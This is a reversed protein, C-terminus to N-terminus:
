ITDLFEQIFHMAVGLPVTHQRLVSLQVFDANTDFTSNAVVYNKLLPMYPPLYETLLGGLVVNCDLAMRINNIGIALHRLLDHWLAEYEPEHRELCDFFEQLSMGLDDSIRYTSVYAELCGRKGCNCPLGAPEVCMHGFEGSRGNDGVYPMGGILVAGGVGHEFSLYALNERESRLFWEAYGSCTADNEWFVPYPIHQSLATLNLASTQLSPALLVWERKRDPVGPLAIGVGLLKSRDARNEDLFLEIERALGLAAEESNLHYENPLVRYALENLRLDTLVLRIRKKAISIGLAIRADPVITLNQAKRGGTSREEGAYCILGQDLLAALSQYITPLSLGLEQALSAKTRPAESDYLCRYVSGITQRKRSSAASEMNM